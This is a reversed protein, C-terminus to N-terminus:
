SHRCRRSAWHTVRRVSDRPCPRSAPASTRRTSPAAWIAISLWAVTFPEVRYGLQALGYYLFFMQVLIPTNRIVEVYVRGIQSLVPIRHARAAGMLLGIVFALVVGIAAVKMTNKFGEWLEHRYDWIFGTDFAALIEVPSHFM